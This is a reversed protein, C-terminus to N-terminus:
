PWDLPPPEPWPEPPEAVRDLLMQRVAATSLSRGAIAAVAEIAGILQDARQFREAPSKALLRPVVADLEHPLDPRVSSPPPAADELIARLIGYESESRFLHKGTLLDWM